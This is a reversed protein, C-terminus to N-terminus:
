KCTHVKAPVHKSETLADTAVTQVLGQLMYELNFKDYKHTFQDLINQV